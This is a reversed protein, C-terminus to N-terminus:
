PILRPALSDMPRVRSLDTIIWGERDRDLRVRAEVLTRGRDDSQTFSGWVPGDPEATRLHAPLSDWSLHVRDLFDAPAELELPTIWRGTIGLALGESVAEPTALRSMAVQDRELLAGIFATWVYYPDLSQRHAAVVFSEGRRELIWQAGAPWAVHSSWTLRRDTTLRGDVYVRDPGLTRVASIEGGPMLRMTVAAKSGQIRVGLLGITGASGGSDIGTIFERTGGRSLVAPTGPRYGLPLAAIRWWGRDVWLLAGTAEISGLGGVFVLESEGAGYTSVHGICQRPGQLVSALEQASRGDALALLVDLRPGAVAKTTPDCRDLAELLSATPAAAGAARSVSAPTREDAQAVGGLAILWAAVLILTVNM